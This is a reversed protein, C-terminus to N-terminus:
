FKTEMFKAIEASVRPFHNLVLIHDASDLIVLDAKPIEAAMAEGYRVPFITDKKGYMILTPIKIRPLLDRRNFEYSQLLCLLFVKLKTNGVDAIMRRINWDGTNLYKSYDIHRGPQASTFNPVLANAVMLLKKAVGDFGESGIEARPSLFITGAACDPHQAQFELAILTGFSHSILIPKKIKLFEILEHLDRAFIKIQYDEASASKASKGHGCLDYSLLNYHPSFKKEYEVWASSSGSLGHIFVLTRRDPQWSNIRYYTNQFIFEQM